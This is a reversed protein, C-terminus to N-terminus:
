AIGLFIYEFCGAEFIQVRGVDIEIDAIREFASVSDKRGSCFQCM